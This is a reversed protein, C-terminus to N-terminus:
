LPLRFPTLDVEPTEGALCQGLLRGTIPALSIGDGEHGTAVFLGPQGPVPGILPLGTESFPRFGVVTQPAPTQALVPLLASARRHLEEIASPNPAPDFGVWDRTGGVFMRGDPRQWLSLPLRDPIDEGEHKASYYGASLMPRHILTALSPYLLAVGRRPRVPIPVGFRQGVEESWAGAAIVVHATAYTGRDTRLEWTAGARHADQVDVGCEFRVGLREAARCYAELVRIPFVKSDDPCFLAGPLHPTLAPEMGRLEEPDLRRISLNVSHKQSYFDDLLPLDAEDEAFLLSGSRDYGLSGPPSDLEEELAPYIRASAEALTRHPGPKKTALSIFGGGVGSAGSGPQGRDLATVTFGRRAAEYAVACGIIGAGIVVVDSNV